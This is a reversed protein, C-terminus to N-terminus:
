VGRLLSYRSVAAQPLADLLGRDVDHLGTLVGDGRSASLLRPATAAAPAAAAESLLVAAKSGAHQNHENGSAGVNLGQASSRASGLPQQQSAGGSARASDAACVAQLDLDGLGLSRLLTALENSLVAPSATPRHVSEGAANSLHYQMAEPQFQMQQPRDSCSPSALEAEWVAAAAVRSSPLRVALLPQAADGLQAADHHSTTRSTFGPLGSLGQKAISTGAGLGSAPVPQPVPTTHLQKPSGVDVGRSSSALQVRETSASVAYGAAGASTSSQPDMGAAGTLGAQKFRTPSGGARTHKRM